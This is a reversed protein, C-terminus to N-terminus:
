RAVICSSQPYDWTLSAFGWGYGGYVFNSGGDYDPDCYINFSTAVENYNPSRLDLTPRTEWIDVSGPIRALTVPLGIRASTSTRAQKFIAYEESLRVAEFRPRGGVKVDDDCNVRVCNVSGRPKNPTFSRLIESLSHNGDKKRAAEVPDNLLYTNFFNAIHRMDSPALDVAGLPLADSTFDKIGYALMPGAWSYLMPSRSDSVKRISTNPKTVNDIHSNRYHMRITHPLYHNIGIV